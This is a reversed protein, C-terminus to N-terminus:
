VGSIQFVNSRIVHILFYLGMLLTLGKHLPRRLSAGSLPARIPSCIPMPGFSRSKLVLSDIALFTPPSWFRKPPMAACFLWSEAGPKKRGNGPMIAPPPQLKMFVNSDKWEKGGPTEPCDRVSGTYENILYKAWKDDVPWPNKYQVAIMMDVM